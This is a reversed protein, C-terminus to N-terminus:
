VSAGDIPYKRRRAKESGLCFESGKVGCLEWQAELDM